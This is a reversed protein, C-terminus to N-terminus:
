WTIIGDLSSSSTSSSSSYMVFADLVGDLYVYSIM